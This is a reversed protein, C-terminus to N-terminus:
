RADSGALSRQRGRVRIPVEWTTLGLLKAVGAATCEVEPSLSRKRWSVSPCAGQATFIVSLGRTKPASSTTYMRVGEAFAQLLWPHDHLQDPTVELSAGLEARAM